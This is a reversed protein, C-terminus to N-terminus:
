GAAGAETEERKGAAQERARAVRRMHRQTAEELGDLLATDDKPRLVEQCKDLVYRAQAVADSQFAIIRSAVAAVVNGARLDQVAQTYGELFGAQFGNVHDQSAQMHALALAAAQENATAKHPKPRRTRRARKDARRQQGRGRDKSM